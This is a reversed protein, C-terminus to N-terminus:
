NRTNQLKLEPNVTSLERVSYNYIEFEVKWGIVM